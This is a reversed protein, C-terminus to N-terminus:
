NDKYNSLADLQNNIVYEVMEWDVDVDFVDKKFRAEFTKEPVSTNRWKILADIFIDRTVKNKWLDAKNTFFFKTVLHKLATCQNEVRYMVMEYDTGWKEVAHQKIRAYEEPDAKKVMTIATKDAFAFVTVMMMIVVFLKKM